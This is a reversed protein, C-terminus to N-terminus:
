SAANRGAPTIAGAKNLLGRAILAQKAADWQERTPFPLESNSSYRHDRAKMEYRDMGNYSAKLGATAQLVLSEHESLECPAPLMRAANSPHLYFTLGMDKGRFMSHCVLAFGPKIAVTHDARGKDCPSSMQGPLPIQRGTALDIASWINRSGGSWLGIDSPITTETCVIVKFKKGKYGGRLAAPVLAPDLYIATMQKTGM